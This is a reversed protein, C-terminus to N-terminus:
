LGAREKWRDFQGKSVCTCERGAVRVDCIWVGKQGFIYCPPLDSVRTPLPAKSVCSCLFAVIGICALVSMCLKFLPSM